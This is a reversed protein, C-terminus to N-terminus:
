RQNIVVPGYMTNCVWCRIFCTFSSSPLASFSCFWLETKIQGVHFHFRKKKNAIIEIWFITHIIKMNELIFNNSRQQKNVPRHVQLGQSRTYNM